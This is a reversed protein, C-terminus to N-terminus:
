KLAKALKSNIVRDANQQAKYLLRNLQEDTKYMLTVTERVYGKYILYTNWTMYYAFDAQM